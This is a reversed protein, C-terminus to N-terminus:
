RLGAAEQSETLIQDASDPFLESADAMADKAEQLFQVALEHEGIHNYAIGASILTWPEDAHPLNVMRDAIAKIAAATLSTLEPQQLLGLHLTRLKTSDVNANFAQELTILAHELHAQAAKLDGDSRRVSAIRRHVQARLYSSEEDLPARREFEDLSALTKMAYKLASPSDGRRSEVGVLQFCVKAQLWHSRPLEAESEVLSDVLTEAEFLIEDIPALPNAAVRYYSLSSLNGVLLSMAERDDPDIRRIRRLTAVGEELSNVAMAWDRERAALDALRAHSSALGKLRASNDPDDAVLAAALVLRKQCYEEAVAPERRKLALAGMRDYSWGLNDRFHTDEPHENVLREDIDLAELYHYGCRELDGRRQALDGLVVHNIAFASINEPVRAEDEPLENRLRMESEFHSQAEAYESLKVALSGLQHHTHVLDMRFIPDDGHENALPMLREYAGRLLKREAHSAGPIKDLQTLVDNILFELSERALRYQDQADVARQQAVCESRVAREYLISATVAYAVGTILLVGVAVAATRHRRMTKILLYATSDRKAEVPEGALYREVDRVVEGAIQYRRDPVVQLCKLVIADLENDIERRYRSPPPHDGALISEMVDRAIAFQDYPVSQTLMFYFLLGLGYVDTRLNVNNPDDRLQEPAAWPLSGVFQGTATVPMVRRQDDSTKALGFDLVHPDGRADVLINAPKLDRHTIGHLHAADVAGAIKLFLALTDVLSLHENRIYEDLPQGDIFDMVFYRQRETTGSTHITVIHPHQLRSLIQVEREFRTRAAEGSFPGSRLVKIAVRRQTTDEIAEYISGQGGSGLGAVVKYGPFVDAPLDGAPEIPSLRLASRTQARAYDIRQNADANASAQDIGQIM